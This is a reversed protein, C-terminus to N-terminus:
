TQQKVPLRVTFTSGENPTSAVAVDGNHARVIYRVLSLGLGSGSTESSLATDIRYFREFIREQESKPIGIGEDVVSIDLWDGSDSANIQVQGGAPSYKIANSMLNILVEIIADRDVPVPPLDEPLTTKVEFGAHDCLPRCASIATQVLDQVSAPDLRYSTRRSEMRSFDLIRETLRSLRETERGIIELCEREDEKTRVRGLLLTETFMRISTLPTRLEHSVNSVFDTKLKSLRAEQRMAQITKGIGFGLATVLLILAWLYLRSREGVLQRKSAADMFCVDLRWTQGASELFVQALDLDAECGQSGSEGASLAMNVENLVGHEAAVQDLLANAANLITPDLPNSPANHGGLRGKMLSDLQEALQPAIRKALSTYVLKVRRLAAAQENEVAIMGLGTLLLSPLAVAFLVFM